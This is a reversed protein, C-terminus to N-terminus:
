LGSGSRGDQTHDEISALYAALDTFSDALPPLPLSSLDPPASGSSATNPVSPAPCAPTTPTVLPNSQIKYKGKRHNKAQGKRIGKVEHKSYVKSLTVKPHGQTSHATKDARKPTKSASGTLTASSPSSISVPVPPHRIPVPLAEFVPLPHGQIVADVVLAVLEGSTLSM